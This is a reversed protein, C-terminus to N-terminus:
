YIAVAYAEDSCILSEMMFIKIQKIAIIDIPFSDNESGM